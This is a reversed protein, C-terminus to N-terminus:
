GSFALLTCFCFDEINIVKRSAFIILFVAALATLLVPWAFLRLALSLFSHQGATASAISKSVTVASSGRPLLFRLVNKIQSSVALCFITVLSVLILAVPFVVILSTIRLGRSRM